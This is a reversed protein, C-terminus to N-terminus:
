SRGFFERIRRMVARGAPPRLRRPDAAHLMWSPGIVRGIALGVLPPHPDYNAIAMGRM